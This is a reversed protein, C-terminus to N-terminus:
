VLVHQLPFFKSNRDIALVPIGLAAKACNRLGYELCLFLVKLSYWTALNFPGSIGNVTSCFDPKSLILLLVFEFVLTNDM